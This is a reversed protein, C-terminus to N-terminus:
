AVIITPAKPTVAISSLCPAIDNNVISVLASARGITAGGGPASLGLTFSVLGKVIACDFLDVRM